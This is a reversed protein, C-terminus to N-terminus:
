ITFGADTLGDIIASAYRHEVARANGLAVTDEVNEEWWGEAELTLPSFTWVTGHNIVVFDLQPKVGPHLEFVRPQPM